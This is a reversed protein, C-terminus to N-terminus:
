EMVDVFQQGGYYRKRPYGESYKNTFVSGLASLVAKSVNNESPILEVCTEQRHQEDVIAQYIQPDKEELEQMFDM